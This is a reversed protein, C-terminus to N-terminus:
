SDHWRVGIVCCERRQEADCLRLYFCLYLGLLICNVLAERVHRVTARRLYKLLFLDPVISVLSETKWFVVLAGLSPARKAM